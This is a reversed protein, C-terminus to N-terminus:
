AFPKGKRSWRSVFGSGWLVGGAVIPVTGMSIAAAGIGDGLGDLILVLVVGVVMMAAGLGALRLGLAGM